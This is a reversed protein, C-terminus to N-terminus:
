ADDKKWVLLRNNAPMAEDKQLKLGADQALRHVAEFDRIGQHTSNARLRKDFAENSISTFRGKYKFPGYMVVTADPKLMFSLGEFLSVVTPWPMIHATNATFVGDLSSYPWTPDGADFTLPRRINNAPNDSIWANISAHNPLLDSTQWILHPLSSSFFVAHQGTGSGIELVHRTDSFVALLLDLFPQQNNECAQSFSKKSHM